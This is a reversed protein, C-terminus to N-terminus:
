VEAKSAAFCFSGQLFSLNNSNMWKFGTREQPARRHEHTYNLTSDFTCTRNDVNETTEIADLQVQWKHRPRPSDCLGIGYPGLVFGLELAGALIRIVNETRLDRPHLWVDGKNEYLM